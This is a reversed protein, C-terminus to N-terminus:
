RSTAPAPLTGVIWRAWLPGPRPASTSWTPATKKSGTTAQRGPTWRGIKEALEATAGLQNRLRTIQQLLESRQQRAEQILQEQRTRRPQLAQLKRSAAPYSKRAIAKLRSGTAVYATDGAVVLKRGDVISFRDGPAKPRYAVLQETGTYVHEDALLAYTGGVSKGLFPLDRLRGDTRDFAAPSVRGMPTYLTTRSALLYGQPSVRSQQTEGCGDNRWLQRGTAADVAYLFVGESPFVGAGFYATPGDVLVGTRVPWLSIMRGNGLVRRDEPAAHFQWVVSGDDARLCYVYGDDSGVYVRGGAVAPALRVPGGTIKTWRIRGSAADLCYVKNDASSGFYVRGGAVAVQFADDFHVRNWEPCGDGESTGWAPAPPFRPRYVWCPALPTPVPEATTQSRAVDHGYTPWDEGRLGATTAAYALAFALLNHKLM